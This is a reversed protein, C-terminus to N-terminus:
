NFPWKLLQRLRKFQVDDFIRHTPDAGCPRSTFDQALRTRHSLGREPKVEPMACFCLREALRLDDMKSFQSDKIAPAPNYIVVISSLGNVISFIKEM